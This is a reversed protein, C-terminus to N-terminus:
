LEAEVQAFGLKIWRLPNTMRQATVETTVDLDSIPRVWWANDMNSQLFLTTGASLLEKLSQYEVRTCIVTIEVTDGKYGETLVLPLDEGLPQFISSSSATTVSLPEAVVKLSMAANPDRPDKLWWNAAELSIEESEPGYDSMFTDGALGYSITRARYKRSSLPSLTQDILTTLGTLQDYKLLQNSTAPLPAWPGYGTGLDEAYEVLPMNFIPHEARGTGRRWVTSGGFALSVRDFYTIDGVARDSASISAKIRTAGAPLGFTAVSKVWTTDNFSTGEAVQTSILENANYFQVKLYPTGAVSGLLAAQFTVQGAARDLVEQSVDSIDIYDVLVVASEGATTSSAPKLIGVWTAASVPGSGSGPTFQATVSQSGTAAVGNSDYAGLTLFNSSAGVTADQRETENGPPAPASSLPKIIGMWAAAARASTSLTGTRSHSGTSIPGNSDYIATTTAEDPNETTDDCREIVENSTVTGMLYSSYMFASIRWANSNTNTATGTSISSGSGSTASETDIFQNAATDANRYAVCQTLVPTASTSLTGSWSAPESSGATRKFIKSTVTSQSDSAILSQVLTWGSPTGIGAGSFSGTVNVVAIMLDGSVVGSPRNITYTTTSSAGSKWETAAAVFQIPPAGSPAVTNAVMAGGTVDDRLAFASLRWAGADTNAVSATTPYLSGSTSGSVNEALFQDASAAAGRYRVVVTRCRTRNSPYTGTWTSPDAVMGDRVMVALSSATTGSGIVQSNVLTWGTPATPAVAIDSAVYAVLLDGDAGSAPRNLTYATTTSSDSYASSTAIYSVTPSIGAYTMKFRKSGDAGTGGTAVRSYTTSASTAAWPEIAIPDDADSAASSLLNRSAHGGNSWASDTGYMLGIADVLHVEANAPSVVELEVRAYVAGTPTTGTCSVETWTTTADTGTGSITGGLTAFDVDYFLIRLNVTRATVKTKFQARATIPTLAAVEEFTSVVSMTAASSATLSMSGGGVNFYSTTDQAAVCNTASYGLSDVTSEFDSQQISLLNSGDRLTLFANSSEADAIVNVFGGGGGAGVGGFGVGGGPVGPTSGQVTFARGAWDSRAGKVSTARVYIYYDNPTLAFPLILSTIDGVVTSVGPITVVEGPYILDPNGSRLTSANYIQPWLAGDGCKKKAIGWLTDGSKVTYSSSAPFLSPTTDPNFTVTGTQAATFVKYEASKQLDGDVQTYTWTLTPSPSTVTGSPATVAVTPKGHYNVQVYFKYVRIADSISCYSFVQAIIKNLTHKTWERGLPDTLYTGVEINSITTTPRVTRSTFKSTNDRSILNVTLSRDGAGANIKARVILTISDIKAGNPINSSSIDLPFRVACRGKNSPNSCYKTDDDSSWAQWAATVGSGNLSWGENRHDSDCIHNYSSM